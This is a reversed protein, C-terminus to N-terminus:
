LGIWGMGGWRGLRVGFRSVFGARARWAFVRSVVWSWRLGMGVCWWWGRSGPGELCSVELVVLGELVRLEMRRRRRVELVIGELGGLLGWVSSGLWWLGWVGSLFLLLCAPGSLSSWLV